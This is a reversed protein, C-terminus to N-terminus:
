EYIVSQYGDHGASIIMGSRKTANDDFSLHKACFPLPSPVKQVWRQLFLFVVCIFFRLFMKNTLAMLEPSVPRSSAMSASNKAFRKPVNACAGKVPTPNNRMKKAIPTKKTLRRFSRQLLSTTNTIAASVSHTIALM